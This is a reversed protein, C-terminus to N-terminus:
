SFKENFIIDFLRLKDELADERVADFDSGKKFSSIYDDELKWKTYITETHVDEDDVTVIRYIEFENRGSRDSNQYFSFYIRGVEYM